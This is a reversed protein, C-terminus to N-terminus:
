ENAPQQVSLLIVAHSAKSPSKVSTDSNPVGAVEFAKKLRAGANKVLDGWLSPREAMNHVKPEVTKETTAILNSIEQGRQKALEVQESSLTKTHVSPYEQDAWVAIQIESLDGSKKSQAVLKQIAAKASSSLNHKNKAFKIEAVFAAQEEAAVQKAEISPAGKEIAAKTPEKLDQKEDHACASMVAAPLIFMKIFHSMFYKM